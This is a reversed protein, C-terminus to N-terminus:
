VWMRSATPAHFGPLSSMAPSTAPAMWHIFPTFAPLMPTAPFIATMPPPFVAM